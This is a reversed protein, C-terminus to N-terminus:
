NNLAQYVGSVFAAQQIRQIGGTRPESGTGSAMSKIVNKVTNM